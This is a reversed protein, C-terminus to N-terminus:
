CDISTYSVVRPIHTHSSARGAWSTGARELEEVVRSASPREGPSVSWMAALLGAIRDDCGGSIPLREQRRVVSDVVEQKSVDGGAWPVRWEMCEWLVVALSYVDVKDGSYGEPAEEGEVPPELMEPAMWLMTGVPQWRGTFGLWKEM